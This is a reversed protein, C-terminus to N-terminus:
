VIRKDVGVVRSGEWIRVKTSSLRSRMVKVWSKSKMLRMWSLDRM